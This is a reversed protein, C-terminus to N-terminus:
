VVTIPTQFVPHVTLRIWEREVSSAAFGDVFEQCSIKLPTRM